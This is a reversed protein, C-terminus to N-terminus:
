GCFSLYVWKMELSLVSGVRNYTTDICWELACTRSLALARNLALHNLPNGINSRLSYGVSVLLNLVARISVGHILVLHTLAAGLSLVQHILAGLILVPPILAGLSLVRLFRNWAIWHWLM